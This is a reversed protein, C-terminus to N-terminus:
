NLLGVGKVLLAELCSQLDFSVDIVICKVMWSKGCNVFYASCAHLMANDLITEALVFHPLSGAYIKSWPKLFALLCCWKIGFECMHRCQNESLLEEFVVICTLCTHWYCGIYPETVEATYLSGTHCWLVVLHRSLKTTATIAVNVCSQLIAQHTADQAYNPTYHSVWKMCVSLVWLMTTVPFLSIAEILLYEVVSGEYSIIKDM